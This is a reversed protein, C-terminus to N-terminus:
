KAAVLGSRAEFKTEYQLSTLFKKAGMYEAPSLSRINSKLVVMMQGALLRLNEDGAKSTTRAHVLNDIAEREPAFAPDLLISPWQLRGADRNYQSDSLRKPLRSKSLRSLEQPTPKPGSKAKRAKAHEARKQHFTQAHKLQNDLDRSRAEQLHVRALASNYNYEGRARTLDAAGRLVSETYTSAHHHVTAPSSVPVGTQAWSTAAVLTLAFMTCCIATAKMM